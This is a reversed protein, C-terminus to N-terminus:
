SIVSLSVLLSNLPCTWGSQNIQHSYFSVVEAASSTYITQTLIDVCGGNSQTSRNTFEECAPIHIAPQSCTAPPPFPLSTWTDFYLLLYSINLYIQWDRRAQSLSHCLGCTVRAQRCKKKEAWCHSRIQYLYVAQRDSKSVSIKGARGCSHSAPEHVKLYTDTHTSRGDSQSRWDPPITGAAAGGNMTISAEQWRVSWAALM